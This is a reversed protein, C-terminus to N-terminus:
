ISNSNTRILDISRERLERYQAAGIVAQVVHLNIRPYKQLLQDIIAPLLSAAMM